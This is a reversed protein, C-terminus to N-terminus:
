DLKSLQGLSRRLLKGAANRPLEPVFVYRSPRKYRALRGECYAALEPAAVPRRSVVYAVPVQGWQEDPIGVVGVDAIAPHGKLVGEIEAPYVNEGGSIILDDRRDLVYLYGEDDLYGLDGTHFWGDKFARANAEPRDLYGVTISPGRVLIEGSPGAGDIKLELPLLPKGASGLKRLADAPSLTAVQSASETLGYTQVVPVHLRACEELLPKPAPGGGLLVCRLAPPFSRGSRNELTRQLTVAVMSVITVGQGDIAANVVAPEFSEHVIVTHGYIIGRLLIALGGVHFLPLIALWCDNPQLGLNLASGIANWWHNGFTLVAGKPQGTTGSTYIISHPAALDYHGPAAQTGKPVAEAAVVNLNPLEAAVALASSANSEDYLLVNVQADRCQWAVEAPTLRINLLVLTAGARSVAHILTAMGLGNRMLLAVRQAPQVSLAQLGGAMISVSRDLEAFTLRDDGAVLALANPTAQARVHLWDPLVTQPM